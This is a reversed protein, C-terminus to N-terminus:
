HEKYQVRNPVPKSRDIRTYWPMLLFFAFYVFVLMRAIQTLLPSTPRMGIYGLAVFSVAFAGLFSNSIWGRYRMSRVRSRDLWPLAYLILVASGMLMVGLLKNPVARLIAYFPTFYWMPRIHPPTQLANAPEYNADELFYGGIGPAFFVIAFFGILFFIVGAADHVTYYPHFPIGDLPIGNKDKHDKIEIGDPNNSGVTHLALIHFLVLFVLVLPVAIVHLSFFRNLTADSIFYDGRIWTLLADGIYPISGFLSVIVQAGWYSMNGWPLVYGMFAEAMLMLYITVGLMWLLERPRKYSGYLLARFIHYYVVIFFASAGTTHVYRILWGWEVDRMIFQVSGFAETAVPKYNMALFIGTLLQLALVTLLTGGGYYWINLNKPAYYESAHERWLKSLPFRADIWTLVPHPQNDDPLKM